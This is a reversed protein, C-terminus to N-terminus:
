RVRDTSTPAPISAFLSLQQSGGATARDIVERRLAALEASAVRAELRAAVSPSTAARVYREYASRLRGAFGEAQLGTRVNAAVETWSVRIPVPETRSRVVIGRADATGISVPDSWGSVVGAALVRGIQRDDADVPLGVAALLASATVCRDSAISIAEDRSIV